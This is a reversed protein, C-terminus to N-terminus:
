LNMLLQWFQSCWFFVGCRSLMFLDFFLLVLSFVVSVGVVLGVGVVVVGFLVGVFFFSLQLNCCLSFVKGLCILVILVFSVFIWFVMVFCFKQRCGCFLCCLVRVCSFVNCCFSLVKSLCQVLSFFQDMEFFYVVDIYYCSMEIIRVFRVLLLYLGGDIGRVLMMLLGVMEWFFILGYCDFVVDCQVVLMLEVIVDFQFLVVVWLCSGCCWVLCVQFVIVVVVVWEIVFVVVM